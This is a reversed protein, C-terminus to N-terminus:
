RRGEKEEMKSEIGDGEVKWWRRGEVEVKWLKLLVQLNQVGPSGSWVSLSRM